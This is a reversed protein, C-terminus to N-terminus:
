NVLGNKALDKLDKVAQAADKTSVFIHDHYYGAVVNASINSQTLKKSIAATLGVADLSSHVNLTICKFVGSYAIKQKDALHKEIIVSMGEKELFTSIPKLQQLMQYDYTEFTAFVYEQPLLVPEMSAILKALDKEGSM